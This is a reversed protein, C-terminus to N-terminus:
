VVSARPRYAWTCGSEWLLKILADSGHERAHDREAESIPILWLMRVHDDRFIPMNLSPADPADSVLLMASFDGGPVSDCPITHHDGLWTLEAWPLETQASIYRAMREVDEDSACAESLCTGLEIRRHPSPDDFAADVQPQPRLSVGLTVLAVGDSVPISMMAKPPWDGGDIAYYCTYEGLNVYCAMMDHQLHAWPGDGEDWSAWYERARDTRLQLTPLAEGLPWCLQSEQICDRSYGSFGKFGSWGPIVTLIEDDELLVAADGEEWWIIELRDADLPPAGDPHNCSERDILPPVGDRMSATVEAENACGPLLNRVWCSRTGFDSDRGGWIYFHAVREDQEVFAQLRGDPSRESIIMKPEM